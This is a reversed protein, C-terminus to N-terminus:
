PRSRAARGQYIYHAERPSVAGPAGSLLPWMDAGDIVRDTPPAAGALGALTPLLDILGCVEDSELGAPIHGPWRAIFPVRVGGGFTTHKGDRLPYASGVANNTTNPNSKSLWPGNDSTFIVLTNDDLGLAQLRDLLRGMSHDLEMAIDYYWSVGSAGQFKPWTTGDANTYTSDSPYTPVHPMTHAIYLFFPRTRNREIFDLARETYRWTLQAQESPTQFDADLVTEGDILPYGPMDNSHPVALCEDFGHRTPWLQMPNAAGTYYGLHWKGVMATAYGREKLQEPLTVERTGLGGNTHGWFVNNVGVRPHYSGTMLCARSPSCLPSAYFSTLRAGQAAMGDIVPTLLRAHNPQPIDPDTYPFNTPPGAHPYYNTPSPYTQAGLDNYGFDDCLVVIFNPPRQPEPVDAPATYARFFLYGALARLIPHKLM